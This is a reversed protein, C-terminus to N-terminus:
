WKEREEAVMKVEPLAIDDYNIVKSVPESVGAVLNYLKDYDDVVDYRVQKGSLEDFLKKACKIKAQEIPKLQLSELSGKTEAVFYIHKVKEKEFAIAWDPSYNGVPTPIKFARPLKAYVCVEEAADLAEAFRREVSKEAYGDTFVYDQIHKDAKFAKAFSERSKEETFISAEYEGEIQNYSVHEVILAAKQKGSLNLDRSGYNKTVDVTVMKKVVAIM